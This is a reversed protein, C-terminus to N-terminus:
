SLMAAQALAMFDFDGFSANRGFKAGIRLNHQVIYVDLIRLGVEASLARNLLKKLGSHFGELQSTAV